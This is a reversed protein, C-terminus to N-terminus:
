AGAPPGATAGPVLTLPVARTPLHRRPNAVRKLVMEVAERGIQYQPLRMMTPEVGATRDTQESIYMVSLDGPVRLGRHHAQWRIAMGLDHEYVLVATPRDAGRLWSAVWAQRDSPSLTETAEIVRPELGAARMAQLYGERRDAVSYHRNVDACVYAVRRHGLQLLHETGRRAGDLDDPHICDHEGKTNLWIAPLSLREILEVMGVPADAIYNLLLGDVSLERLIKPMRQDSALADDHLLALTLQMDRRAAERQAGILVRMSVPTFRDDYSGLLGVANFRGQSIARAAANPRFGLENASDLIKQRAERSLRGKGSIALYVAPVSYGAHEAVTKVTVPAM